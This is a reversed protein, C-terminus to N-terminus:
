VLGVRATDLCPVDAQELLHAWRGTCVARVKATTSWCGPTPPLTGALTRAAATGSRGTMFEVDKM